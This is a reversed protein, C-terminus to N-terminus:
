RPARADLLSEIALDTRLATLQRSIRASEAGERLAKGKAGPIEAAASLVGELTAFTQLLQSASKAGISQVGPIGDVADGTLALYDQLQAPNVGFKGLVWDADRVVQNFHDVVRVDEDVLSCLDKDTSMVTAKAGPAMEKWARVLSALLDDAEFGSVEWGRIGLQAVWAQWGPGKRLEDFLPQPMPKRQAKYQPYLTHRWTPGVPDMVFVVHSPQHQALARRVSAAASRLAGQAKQPSDPSLNAEYCRRVINLGDIGLLNLTM